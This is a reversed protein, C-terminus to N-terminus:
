RRVTLREVENSREADNVNYYIDQTTALSKHRMDAQLHKPNRLPADFTAGTHRFWHLSTSRLSSVEEEPFGEAQMRVIVRDLVEQVDKRLQRASLGGTGHIKRLLPEDENPGPLEPLGLQLRYRKLYNLCDPKVAIRALENGKGVVEYWWGNSDRFFSSMTPRWSGLGVLDSVRLYCSFMAVIAFLTREHKAPNEAAMLEATEVVFEWQLKTLSKSRKGIRARDEWNSLRKAISLCPNRSGLEEATCYGYLANIVAFVQRITSSPMKFEPAPVDRNMEVAYKAKAKPVRMTFPRWEPNPEMQGEVLVLRPKVATGIWSEYPQTCFTMFAEIDARQFELFSKQQIHWAFLRLREVQTRYNNFTTEFSSNSKMFQHIAKFDAWADLGDAMSDIYAKAYPREQIYRDFDGAERFATHTDLLAILQIDPASM